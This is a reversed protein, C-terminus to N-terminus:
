FLLCKGVLEINGKNVGHEMARKSWGSLASKTQDIIEKVKANQLQAEAGLETLRELNPNRGEGM